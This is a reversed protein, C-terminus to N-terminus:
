RLGPKEAGLPADLGVVRGEQKERGRTPSPVDSMLEQASM